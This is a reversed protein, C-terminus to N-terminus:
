SYLLKWHTRHDRWASQGVQPHNPFGTGAAPTLPFLIGLGPGSVFLDHSSPHSMQCWHGWNEWRNFSSPLGVLRKTGGLKTEEGQTYTEAEWACVHLHTCFGTLHAVVVGENNPSCLLLGDEQLISSVQHILSDGRWQEQLGNQERGPNVFTQLNQSQRAM